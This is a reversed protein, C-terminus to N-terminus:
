KAELASYVGNVLSLFGYVKVAILQALREGGVDYCYEVLDTFDEYNTVEQRQAEDLMQTVCIDNSLFMQRKKRGRYARQKESNSGYRPAKEIM